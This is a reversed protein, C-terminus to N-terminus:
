FLDIEWNVIFRFQYGTQEGGADVYANRFRLQLGKVKPVDYTVDFDFEDTDPLSGGSGDERDVGKGYAVVALLGPVHPGGGKGFDYKVAVGFAKENARDFDTEILSLWGPWSGYASRISADDGTAHFAAGITLGWKWVLRAGVGLNWTEFDDLLEDGVSRQDTYQVGFHGDLCHTLCRVHKVYGFATNYVDPTYYDGVFVEWAKSPKWLVSGFGLGEDSDAVGAQESMSIFSDSNRPKMEWIWGSGYEVKGVKGRLTVAEFTNPIMRNDQPGVYGDNISQRYGTLVAAERYRVRAFAQGLVNIEEQGPALLSTGDHDDPGYLPQSTYATAGVQFVDRFWGSTMQLWGGFAWAQNRSSDVNERDFYFSRLHLRVDAETLFPSTCPDMRCLGLPNRLIGPPPTKVPIMEPVLTGQRPANEVLTRQDESLGMSGQPAPAAPATDPGEPTRSPPPPPPAGGPAPGEDALAAPAVAVALALFGWAATRALTPM